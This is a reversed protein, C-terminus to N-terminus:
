KAYLYTEEDMSCALTLIKHQAMRALAEEINNQYLELHNHADIYM